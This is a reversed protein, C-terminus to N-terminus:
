TTSCAWRIASSSRQALRAQVSNSRWAACCAPKETTQRRSAGPTSATGGARFYRIGDLLQEVALQVDGFRALPRDGNGRPRMGSRIRLCPVGRTEKGDGRWASTSTNRRRASARQGSNRRQAAVHHSNALNSLPGIRRGLVTCHHGPQSVRGVTGRIQGRLTQRLQLPRTPVSPVGNPRYTTSTTHAPCCGANSSRAGAMASVRALLDAFTSRQYRRRQHHQTDFPPASAASDSSTCYSCHM